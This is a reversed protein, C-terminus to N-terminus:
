PVPVREILDHFWNQLLVDHTPVVRSQSAYASQPIIAGPPQCGRENAAEQINGRLWLILRRVHHGPASEPELVIAKAVCEEALKLYSEDPKVGINVHQWYAMGLTWLTM